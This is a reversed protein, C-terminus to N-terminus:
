PRGRERTTRRPPQGPTRRPRRICASALAGVLFAIATDAGLSFFLLVLLVAAFGALMTYERRMFVMAGEHIADGIKRINEPGEDYRKVLGFIIFAVILGFIGFVPPILATNIM